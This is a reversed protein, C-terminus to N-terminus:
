NMHRLTSKETLRLQLIDKGEEKKLTGSIPLLEETRM